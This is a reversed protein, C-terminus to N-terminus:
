ADPLGGLESRNVISQVAEPGLGTPSAAPVSAGNRAIADLLSRALTQLDYPKPLLNFALDHQEVLVTSYGSTLLVPLRPWRARIEAALEIGNMGAMVVDSFVVSWRSPEAEIIELARSANSAHQTLYGIEHLTAEVAAALDLNDEVVLVNGSSVGDRAQADSTGGDGDASGDGPVRPFYLTFQAGAGFESQVAIDGGSQKVFGFVQSLGLGTGQGPSKSTYFPEFIRELDKEAIGTGSDTVTVAVFEGHVAPHRRLAPVHDTSSVEISLSGAGDMADRANVVLNVLATDFQSPDANIFCNGQLQRSIDIRAGVLTALMEALTAVNKSADFVAPTLAQRRAFALLQGTLRSAREVTKTIAKLAGERHQASTQPRNLLAVSTSIVTLLNNFDHAVGGTLQGVAEMKQSQRLQEEAAALAKAASVDRGAAVIMGNGLSANWSIWRYTGDKHRYRNEFSTLSDGRGIARAGEESHAVDDPHLLDFFNTGVLEDESWGLIVGWGPNAAVLTGDLRAILMMDRTIKWILDRDASRAAVQQELDANLAQLSRQAEGLAKDALVRATTENTFIFLGAVEGDDQLVRSYSFTWWTDAAGRDTGLKWPLDNFRQSRGSFADDIIPKAQNWADAWVEKFPAGMAWPLRPGLLPFYTENFFFTLDDRGWSLIMSEPSNLILSLATKLSTPWAQPQGLPHTTWDRALILRTAAGGGALFAMGPPLRDHAFDDASPM